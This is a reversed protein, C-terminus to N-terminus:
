DGSKTFVAKSILPSRSCNIHLHENMIPDGEYIMCYITDNESIKEGCEFCLDLKANCQKCKLHELNHKHKVQVLMDYDPDPRDCEPFQIEVITDKPFEHNFRHYCNDMFNKGYVTHLARKHLVGEVDSWHEVVYSERAGIEKKCYECKM